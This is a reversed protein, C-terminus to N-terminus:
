RRWCGMGKLEGSVNARIRQVRFGLGRPRKGCHALTVSNTTMCMSSGTGGIPKCAQIYINVSSAGAPINLTAYYAGTDDSGQGTPFSGHVLPTSSLSQGSVQTFLTFTTDTPANGADKTVDTVWQLALSDTNTAGALLASHATIVGVGDAGEDADALRHWVAVRRAYRAHGGGGGQQCAATIM